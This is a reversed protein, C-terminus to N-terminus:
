GGRNGLALGQHDGYVLGAHLDAHHVAAGLGGTPAVGQFEGSRNAEVGAAGPRHLHAVLDDAVVDPDLHDLVLDRRREALDLEVDHIAFADGLDALDDIQADLGSHDLLGASPKGPVALTDALSAVVGALEELGIRVDGGLDFLLHAAIRHLDLFLQQDSRGDGFVFLAEGLGQLAGGGRSPANGGALRPQVRAPHNALRRGLRM